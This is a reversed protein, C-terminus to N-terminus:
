PRRQRGRPPAPWSSCRGKAEGDPLVYLDRIGLIMETPVNSGSALKQWENILQLQQDLRDLQWTLGLQFHPLGETEQLFVSVPMGSWALWEIAQTLLRGWLPENTHAFRRRAQELDAVIDAGRNTRVAAQWRWECLEPLVPELSGLELLQEFRPDFSLQQDRVVERRLLERLLWAQPAACAWM